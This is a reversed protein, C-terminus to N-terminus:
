RRDEKSRGIARLLPRQVGGGQQTKAARRQCYFIWAGISGGIVYPTAMLFLVTWNMATTMPEEGAAGIRPLLFFEVALCGVVALLGYGM